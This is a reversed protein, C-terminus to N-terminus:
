NTPETMSHQLLKRAKDISFNYGKLEDKLLTKNSKHHERVELFNPTIGIKM